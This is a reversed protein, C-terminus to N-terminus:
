TPSVNMSRATLQDLISAAQAFMCFGPMKM